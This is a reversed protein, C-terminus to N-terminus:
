ELYGLSRLRRLVEPSLAAGEGQLTRWNAEADRLRAALRTGVGYHSSLVNRQEGPDSRLDYLRARYIRGFLHDEYLKWDLTRLSSIPPDFRKDM